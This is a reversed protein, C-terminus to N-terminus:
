YKEAPEKKTAKIDKFAKWLFHTITLRYKYPTIAIKTEEFKSKNRLEPTLAYKTM